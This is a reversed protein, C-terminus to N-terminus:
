DKAKLLDLLASPDVPKVLHHDFGVEESRERDEAQGWGTVAILTTKRGWDLRRIQRAVEYGDLKPLGIDLLIADPRFEDAAAIAELGDHATRIEHGVLRFLMGLSDASDRNDDVVLVRLPPAPAAGEGEPREGAGKPEDGGPLKVTLVTGPGLGDSRPVLADGHGGALLETYFTILRRSDCVQAEAPMAALRRQLEMVTWLEAPEAPTEELPLKQATTAQAM